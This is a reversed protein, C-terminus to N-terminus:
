DRKIRKYTDKKVQSKWVFRVNERKITGTINNIKNNKTTTDKTYKLEKNLKIIKKSILINTTKKIYKM